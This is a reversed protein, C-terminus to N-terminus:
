EQIDPRIPGEQPAEPTMQVTQRYEVPTSGTMRKFCYCFYSQTSFGLHQSIKAITHNTSMLLRKGEEIRKMNLYHIPSYGTEKRFAHVLYYKSLHTHQALKDLTLMETFNLDIFRKLHECEKSKWKIELEMSIHGIRQLKILLINLLSDCVKQYEAQKNHIEALMQNLIPFIESESESDGPLLVYQHDNLNHQIFSIKDVGIVLYEFPKNGVHRETHTVNANVMVIDRQEIPICQSEVQFEGAGDVIYFLEANTHTHPISHWERGGMSSSIYLLRAKDIDLM